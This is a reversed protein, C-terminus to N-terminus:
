VCRRGWEDDIASQNRAIRNTEVDDRVKQTETETRRGKWREKKREKKSEGSYEKKVKKKKRNRVRQLQNETKRDKEWTEPLRKIIIQIKSYNLAPSVSETM